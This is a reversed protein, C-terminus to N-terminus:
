VYNDDDQANEADTEANDTAAYDNEAHDDEAHNDENDDAVFILDSM